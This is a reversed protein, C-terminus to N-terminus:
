GPRARSVRDFRKGETEAFECRVDGGDARLVIKRLRRLTKEDAINPLAVIVEERLDLVDDADLIVDVLVKQLTKLGCEQAIQIAIRRAERNKGKDKIWSRLRAPLRRCALKHYQSRLAHGGRTAGRNQKELLSEALELKEGESLVTVDGGLVVQPERQAMVKRVEPAMSVLWSAVGRLQPVIRKEQAHDLLQIMQDLSLGKRVLYDAALFEGYSEHALGMRDPALSAFLGTALVERMREGDIEVSTRGHSETGGELELIGVDQEPNEEFVPGTFVATRRCFVLVAAIRGAIALRGEPSLSGMIGAARRNLSMEECLKLCGKGFLEAQTGPLGKGDEYIRLLLDLTIPRMALSM